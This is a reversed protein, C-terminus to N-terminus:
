TMLMCSTLVPPRQNLRQTALDDVYLVYSCSTAHEIGPNALTKSLITTVPNTGKESSVMTKISTINQLPIGTGALVGQLLCM